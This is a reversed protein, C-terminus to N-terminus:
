KLIDHWEIPLGETEALKLLATHSDKSFTEKSPQGESDLGGEILLVVSGQPYPAVKTPCPISRPRLSVILGSRDMFFHYPAHLFGHKLAGKLIDAATVRVDPKTMSGLVM